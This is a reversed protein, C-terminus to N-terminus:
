VRALEVMTGLSERAFRKQLRRALPYGLRVLLQNPQSFALIDYWVSGDQHLEVSFREEGREVHSSLTGYAFGFKKVPSIDDILYVIRCASLSWVGFTKARIAVTNGVEIPTTDPVISVWGLDFQRWGQLAAISRAFVEPGDGLKIRNHDLVYDAPPTGNTAGVESYSFTQHNVSSLFRTVTETSPKTLFFMTVKYLLSGALQENREV